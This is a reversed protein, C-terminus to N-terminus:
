VGQSRDTFSAPKAIEWSVCKRVRDRKGDLYICPLKFDNCHQCQPREGSCKTKRSRCSDCAHAIRNHENSTGAGSYSESNRRLRPIAVKPPMVQQFSVLPSPPPMSGPTTPTTPPIPSAVDQPSEGTQDSTSKDKDLKRQKKQKQARNM